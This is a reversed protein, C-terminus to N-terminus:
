NKFAVYTMLERFTIADGCGLKAFAIADTAISTIFERIVSRPDYQEAHIIMTVLSVFAHSSILEFALHGIARQDDDKTIVKAYNKCFIESIESLFVENDLAALVATRVTSDPIPATPLYSLEFLHTVIDKARSELWDPLESINTDLRFYRVNSRETMEALLNFTESFVESALDSAYPTDLKRTIRYKM